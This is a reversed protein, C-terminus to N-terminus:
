SKFFLHILWNIIGFVFGALFYSKITPVTLAIGDIALALLTQDFLWFIIGNLIILSLGLTIIQIPFTLLKLVPKVIGNLIGMVVGGVVFFVVGGTYKIEPFLYLVAYLTLANLIIGIFLKKIM